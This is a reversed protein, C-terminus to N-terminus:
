PPGAIPNLISLSRIFPPASLKPIVSSRLIFVLTDANKLWSAYINDEEEPFSSIGPVLRVPVIVANFAIFM